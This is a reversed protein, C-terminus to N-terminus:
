AIDSNATTPMSLGQLLPSARSDRSFPFVDRGLGSRRTERCGSARSAVSLPPMAKKRVDPLAYSRAMGAFGMAAM